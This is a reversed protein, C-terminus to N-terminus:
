IVPVCYTIVLNQFSWYMRCFTLLVAPILTLPISKCSLIFLLLSLNLVHSLKPLLLNHNSFILLLLLLLLWLSLVLATLLSALNARNLWCLILKM